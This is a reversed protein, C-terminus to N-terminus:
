SVRRNPANNTGTQVVLGEIRNRHVLKELYMEEEGVAFRRRGLLSILATTLSPMLPNRATTEHRLTVAMTKKKGTVDRGTRQKRGEAEEPPPLRSKWSQILHFYGGAPWLTALIVSCAM